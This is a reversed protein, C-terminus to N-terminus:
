ITFSKQNSILLCILLCITNYQRTKTGFVSGTNTFISQTPTCEWLENYIKSWFIMHRNVQSCKDYCVNLKCSLLLILYDTSISFKFNWEAKFNWTCTKLEKCKICYFFFNNGKSLILSTFWTPEWENTSNNKSCWM